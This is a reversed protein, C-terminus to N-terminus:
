YLSITKSVFGIMNQAISKLFSSGSALDDQSPSYKSSVWERLKNLEEDAQQERLLITSSIIVSSDSNSESNLDDSNSLFFSSDSNFTSNSSLFPSYAILSLQHFESHSLSSSFDLGGAVDLFLRPM